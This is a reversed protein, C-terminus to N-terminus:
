LDRPGDDYIWMWFAFLVVLGLEGLYAAVMWWGPQYPPHSGEWAAMAEIGFCAVLYLISTLLFIFDRQTVMIGLAVM